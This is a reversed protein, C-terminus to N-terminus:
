LLRIETSPLMGVSGNNQRPTLQLWSPKSKGNTVTLSIYTHRQGPVRLRTCLDVLGPCVILGSADITHDAILTDHREMIAMITNESILIDYQGDLESAPDIVHGNAIRLMM